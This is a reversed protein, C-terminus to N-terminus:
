EITDPQPLELGVTPMRLDPFRIGLWEITALVLAHTVESGSEPPHEKMLHNARGQIWASAGLQFVLAAGAAPKAM